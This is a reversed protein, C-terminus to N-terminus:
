VEDEQKKKEDEAYVEKGTKLDIYFGEGGITRLCFEFFKSFNIRDRYKELLNKDVRLTINTKM